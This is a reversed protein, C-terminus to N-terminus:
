LVDNSFARWGTIISQCCNQVSFFGFDLWRLGAWVSRRWEVVQAVVVETYTDLKIKQRDGPLDLGAVDVRGLENRDGMGHLLGEDPLLDVDHVVQMVVLQDVQVISKFVFIFHNENEFQLNWDKVEFSM